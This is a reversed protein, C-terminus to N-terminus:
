YTVPIYPGPTLGLTRSVTCKNPKEGSHVRMHILLKYRANFPKYRRQCAAWFCTFDEGKRQDVHSQEIHRVLEEKDKFQNNCEYWRCIHQEKGSEDADEETFEALAESLGNSMTNVNNNLNNLNHLNNINNLSNTGPQPHPHPHMAGYPQCQPMQQGMAQDYSPPPRMNENMSLTNLNQNINHMSSTFGSMNGDTGPMQVMNERPVSFQPAGFQQIDAFARQELMPIESQAMVVQNSVIDQIYDQIDFEPEPKLHLMGRSGSNASGSYPSGNSNRSNRALLHGFHGVQPQQQQQPPMPPASSLINIGALSTPSARILKTFDYGDGIPSLSHARKTARSHIHASHRPSTTFNSGLNTSGTPSTEMALNHPSLSNTGSSSHYLTTASSPVVGNTHWSNHHHRDSMSKESISMSDSDKCSVVLPLATYPNWGKNNPQPDLFNRDVNSIPTQSNRDSGHGSIVSLPTHVTRSSHITSVESPTPTHTELRQNPVHLQSHGPNAFAAASHHGFGQKLAPSVKLGQLGFNGADSVYCICM